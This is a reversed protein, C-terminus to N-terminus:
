IVPKPDILINLAHTSIQLLCVREQHHFMSDAELDVGIAPEKKLEVIIKNLDADNEILMYETHTSNKMMKEFVDIGNM